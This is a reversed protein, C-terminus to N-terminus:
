RPGVLQSILPHVVSLTMALIVFKWVGVNRPPVAYMCCLGVWLGAIYGIEAHNQVSLFNEIIGWPIALSLSKLIITVMNLKSSDAQYDKM